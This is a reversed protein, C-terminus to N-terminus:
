RVKGEGMNAYLSGAKRSYEGTALVARGVRVGLWSELHQLIYPNAPDFESKTWPRASRPEDDNVNTALRSPPTTTM